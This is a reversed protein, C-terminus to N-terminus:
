SNLSELSVVGIFTKRCPCSCHFFRSLINGFRSAFVGILLAMMKAQARLLETRTSHMSVRSYEETITVLLGVVDLSKSQLVEHLSIASDKGTSWSMLAKPKEKNAIM